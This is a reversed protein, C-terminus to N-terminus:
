PCPITGACTFGSPGPGGAPPAGFEALFRAFDPGGVVGDCTMDPGLNAPATGFNAAFIAFDPGGCVDDNNFDCDCVNGYGDFDTDCFETGSPSDAQAILICNDDPDPRGDGDVDGPGKSAWADLVLVSAGLLAALM